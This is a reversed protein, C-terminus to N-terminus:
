KVLPLQPRLYGLIVEEIHENRVALASKSRLKTGFITELTDANSLYFYGLSAISIYLQVADVGDRFVGEKVGRVLVDDIRKVLPFHMDRVKESKKIHRAGALNESNLLRIFEPHELYYNFTFGTLKRIADLPPLDSLHLKEEHARIEAYVYELVALFLDEKNGFYHYLMRKNSKARAAIEDVRAGALGKDSFERLAAALINKATREPNRKNKQM